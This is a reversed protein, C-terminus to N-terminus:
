CNVDRWGLPGMLRAMYLVFYCSLPYSYLPDKYGFESSKKVFSVLCVSAWEGKVDIVFKGVIDRKTMSKLM